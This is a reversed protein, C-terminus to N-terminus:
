SWRDVFAGALPSFLTMPILRTILIIATVETAADSVVRGLGLAAVFNFWNGMESIVQGCWLRRFSRNRRLLQTYTLSDMTLYFRNKGNFFGGLKPPERDAENQEFTM